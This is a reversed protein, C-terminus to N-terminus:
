WHSVRRKASGGSAGGSRAHQTSTMAAHNTGMPPRRRSASFRGCPSASQSLHTDLTARLVDPRTLLPLPSLAQDGLYGYSILQQSVRAAEWIGTSLQAARCVDLRVIARFDGCALHLMVMGDPGAIARVVGGPDGSALGHVPVAWHERRLDGIVLEDPAPSESTPEIAKDTTM